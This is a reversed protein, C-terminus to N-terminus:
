TAHYDFKTSSFHFCDINLSIAALNICTILNKKGYQCFIHKTLSKSQSISKLSPDTHCSIAWLSTLHYFVACWLFPYLTFFFCM